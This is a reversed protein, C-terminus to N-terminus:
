NFCTLFFPAGNLVGIKFVKSIVGNLRIKDLNLSGLPIMCHSM